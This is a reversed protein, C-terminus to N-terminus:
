GEEFLPTPYLRKLKIRADEATFRWKVGKQRTNRDVEWATLMENLEDLTSIRRNGICQRALSSLESEAINLWSGHKPTYHFEYKQTLRYATEPSYAEYFSAANHTNLNDSVLVIKEVDPYYKDSIRKMMFAFDGKTRQERAVVHRWAGLPETFMFISATGCRVYESDLKQVEGPKPIGTDPDLRLPKASIRERIEDLLQIPKEDMCIVPIRPNYPRKYVSLVDEMHMVFGADSGKPICWYKSLHPKVENTNLMEGIASHSISVVYQKEMCHEALLRLTWRANGKPASSLATAIVQAEFDGTIKSLVPATLRTRRNLAADLGENAYTKRVQNVTTPSISFMEAIERVNKKRFLNGDDTKLLINAHMIVRASHGSGKHTIDMLRATEARSLVVEYLEKPM